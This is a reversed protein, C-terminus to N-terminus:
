DDSEELARIFADLGPREASCKACGVFPDDIHVNHKDCSATVSLRRGFSLFIPRIMLTLHLNPSANAARIDPVPCRNCDTPQWHLSETNYTLLRCEQTQRGRHFDAYYHPCEKGNPTQM